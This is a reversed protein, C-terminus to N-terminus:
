QPSGRGRRPGCFPRGAWQGATCYWARRGSAASRWGRWPAACTASKACASRGTRRSDQEGHGRLDLMLVAYGARAYVPATALVHADDKAGGWGHVLLAVRKAAPPEIWWAALPLGDESEVRVEEFELGVEAPTAEMPANAPASLRAAVLFGVGLYAAALAVLAAPLAPWRRRRPV